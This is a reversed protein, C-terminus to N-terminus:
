GRFLRVIVGAANIGLPIMTIALGFILMASIPYLVILRIYNLDGEFVPYDWLVAQGIAKFYNAGPLSFALGFNTGPVNFDVQNGPDVLTCEVSRQALPLDPDCNIPAEGSSM